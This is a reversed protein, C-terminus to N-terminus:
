RGKEAREVATSPGARGCGANDGHASCRGWVHRVAAQPSEGARPLCAGEGTARDVETDGGHGGWGQGGLRELRSLGCRAEEQQDALGPEKRGGHRQVQPGRKVSLGRGRRQQQSPVSEGLRLVSMERGPAEFNIVEEEPKGDGAAGMHGEPVSSWLKNAKNRRERRGCVDIFCSARALATAPHSAPATGVRPPGRGTLPEPVRLPM